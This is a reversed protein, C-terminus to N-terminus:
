SSVSPKGFSRAPCGGLISCCNANASSTAACLLKLGVWSSKLSPPNLCRCLRWIWPSVVSVWGRKSERKPDVSTGVHKVVSSITFQGSNVKVFFRSVQVVSSWRESVVDGASCFNFNCMTSFVWEELGSIAWLASPSMGACKQSKTRTKPWFIGCRSRAKGNAQRRM